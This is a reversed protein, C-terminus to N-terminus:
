CGGARRANGVPRDRRPADDGVAIHLSRRRILRREACATTDSDPRPRCSARHLPGLM